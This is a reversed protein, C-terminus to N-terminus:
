NGAFLFIFYMDFFLIIAWGHGHFYLDHGHFDASGATSSAQGHLDLGYSLRDACSGHTNSSPMHMGIQPHSPEM